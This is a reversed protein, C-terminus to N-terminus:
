SHSTMGHTGDQLAWLALRAWAHSVHAESLHPLGTLPSTLGRLVCEERPGVELLASGQTLLCAPM